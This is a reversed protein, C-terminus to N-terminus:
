LPYSRTHVYANNDVSTQLLPRARVSTCGTYMHESQDIPANWTRSKWTNECVYCVHDTYPTRGQGWLAHVHIQIRPTDCSRTTLDRQWATACITCKSLETLAHTHTCLNLVTDTWQTSPFIHMPRTYFIGTENGHCHQQMSFSLNAQGSKTRMFTWPGKSPDAVRFPSQLM